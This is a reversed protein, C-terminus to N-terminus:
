DTQGKDDKWEMDEGKGKIVGASKLAEEKTAFVGRSKDGTTGSAISPVVPFLSSDKAKTPFWSKGGNDAKVESTFDVGEKKMEEDVKKGADKWTFLEQGPWVKKEKRGYKLERVEEVVGQVAGMIGKISADCKRLAAGESKMVEDIMEGVWVWGKKARIPQVAEYRKVSHWRGRMWLGKKLLVDAEAVGRVFAVVTSSTRGLKERRAREKEGVLWRTGETLIFGAEELAVEVGGIGSEWLVGGLKLGVIIGKGRVGEPDFPIGGYGLRRKKGDVVEEVMEKIGRKGTTPTAPRLEMKTFPKRPTFPIVNKVEEKMKARKAEALKLEAETLKDRLLSVERKLSDITNELDM